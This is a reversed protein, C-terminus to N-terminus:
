DKLKVYTNSISPLVVLDNNAGLSAAVNNNSVAVYKGNGYTVSQWYASFPMTVATWTIGDTSYAAANSNYAVAVYKGNGYTVSEFGSLPLTRAVWSGLTTYFQDSLDNVSFGFGEESISLTRGDCLYWSPDVNLIAEKFAGLFTDEGIASSVSGNQYVPPYWGYLGENM